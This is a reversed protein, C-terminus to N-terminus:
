ATILVNEGGAHPHDTHKPRNAATSATRGV